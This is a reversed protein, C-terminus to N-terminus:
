QCCGEVKWRGNDFKWHEVNVEDKYYQKMDFTNVSSYDELVRVIYFEGDYRHIRKAKTIVVSKDKDMAYTASTTARQRRVAMTIVGGIM